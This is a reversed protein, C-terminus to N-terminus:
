PGSIASSKIRGQMTGSYAERLSMGIILSPLYGAGGLRAWRSGSASVRAKGDGAEFVSQCWVVGMGGLGEVDEGTEGEEGTREEGEFVGGRAPIARFQVEYTM